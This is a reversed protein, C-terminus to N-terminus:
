EELALSSSMVYRKDNVQIVGYQRTPANPIWFVHPFYSEVGNGRTPIPVLQIQDRLWTSQYFSSIGYQQYFMKTTNPNANNNFPKDGLAQGCVSEYPGTSQNFDQCVSGYYGNNTKSVIIGAACQYSDVSILMLLGKSTAYMIRPLPISGGYSVPTEPSNTEGGGHMYFSGSMNKYNGSGVNNGQCIAHTSVEGEKGRIVLHNQGGSEVIDACIGNEGTHANIFDRITAANGNVEGRVIAM